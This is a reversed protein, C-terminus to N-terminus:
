KKFLFSELENKKNIFHQETLFAVKRKPKIPNLELEKSSNNLIKFVFPIIIETSDESKYILTRYNRHERTIEINTYNNSKCSLLILSLLLLSITKKM